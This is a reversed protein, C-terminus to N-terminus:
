LMKQLTKAAHIGGYGAGLIVVRKKDAMWWEEWANKERGAPRSGRAKGVAAWGGM